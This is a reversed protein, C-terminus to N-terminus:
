EYRRLKGTRSHVEFGTRSLHLWGDGRARRRGTVVINVIARVFMHACGVGLAGFWVLMPWCGSTQWWAYLGILPGSLVVGFFVVVFVNQAVRNGPDPYPLVLDRDAHARGTDM